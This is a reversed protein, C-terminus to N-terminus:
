LVVGISLSFLRSGFMYIQSTNKLAFMAGIDFSSYFQRYTGKIGIPNIYVAPAFETKKGCFDTESGTNMGIGSGFASHLSVYKKNMYNFSIEPMVVINLFHDKRNLSKPNGQGDYECTHWKVGSVDVMGGVNIVKTLHYSATTFWHKTYRYRDKVEITESEPLLGYPQTQDHWCLREFLQDGVGVGLELKGQEQASAFFDPCLLTLILFARRIRNM